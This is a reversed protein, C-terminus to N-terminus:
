IPHPVSPPLPLFSSVPACKARSHMTLHFYTKPTRFTSSQPTKASSLCVCLLLHRHTASANPIKFTHAASSSSLCRNSQSSSSTSPLANLCVRMFYIFSLRMTLNIRQPVHTGKTGRKYNLATSKHIHALPHPPDFTSPPSLLFALAGKRRFRLEFGRQCLGSQVSTRTQPQM